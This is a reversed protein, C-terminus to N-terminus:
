PSSISCNTSPASGARSCRWRGRVCSSTCKACRSIISSSVSIPSVFPNPVQEMPLVINLGISTSGADAAGRNAAEMISPGGGSCVVFHLTRDAEAPFGSALRALTRAESYHRSMPHSGGADDAPIRASGYIVFTSLIGADDLLMEPKLLEMQFRLPRLGDRLMFDGDQYALRYAPSLTQATEPQASALRSDTRADDLADGCFPRITM